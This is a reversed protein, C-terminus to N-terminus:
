KKLWPFAAFSTRDGYDYALESGASIDQNAIFALRPVNDIVIKVTDLNGNISHNILRGIGWPGNETTADLCYEQGRHEFYYMYCSMIHTTSTAAYTKERRLAETKTILEGVYECIFQFRSLSRLTRVGTGKGEITMIEAPFHRRVSMSQAIDRKQQSSLLKPKNNKLKNVHNNEFRSPCPDGSIVSSLLEYFKKKSERVPRHEEQETVSLSSIDPSIVTIPATPQIEEPSLPPSSSSPSLSLSSSFSSNLSSASSSSPSHPPSFSLSSLSSFSTPSHPPSSSPSSSSLSYLKKQRTSIYLHKRTIKRKRKEMKAIVEEFLARPFKLVMREVSEMPESEVMDTNGM